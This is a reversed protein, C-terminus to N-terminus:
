HQFNLMNEADFPCYGRHADYMYSTCHDTAPISTWLARVTMLCNENIGHSIHTKFLRVVTCHLTCINSYFGYQNKKYM